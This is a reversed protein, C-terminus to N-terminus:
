EFYELQNWKEVITKFLENEVILKAAIMRGEETKLDYIPDLWESIDLEDFMTPDNNYYVCFQYIAQITDIDRAIDSNVSRNCYWDEWSDAISGMEQSEPYTGSLLLSQMVANENRDYYEQRRAKEPRAVDGTRVEGLDHILLMNLIKNKDYEKSETKEPLYMTGILWCNYMHEAISEPDAIGRNVWGTRKVVNTRFCDNFVKTPSYLEEEICYKEIEGQMWEFYSKIKEFESLKRQRLIWRLFKQTKAAYKKIDITEKGLAAAEVRAQIMSCLTFCELVLKNSFDHTEIKEKISACLVDLTNTGRKCDDEFDLMSKNPIYQKDGYYTLHFARNVENTYKDFLLLEFYDDAAKREGLVILSVSITRLLFANKKTNLGTAKAEIYQKKQQERYKRLLSISEEISVKNKLRGMWFILQNKELVSMKDYHNNAISLVKSEYADIQNIMPSVFVTVAKPLIMSFFHLQERIHEEDDVDLEELRIFYYRAILYDLVSRHKCIIQWRKDAYLEEKKADISGYEFEYALEAASDIESTNLTKRCIALYLDAITLQDNLINGLMERLLTVLWYVDLKAVNLKALRDYITNEDVNEYPIHIGFAHLCNRIFETSREKDYLSMSEIRLYYEFDTGAIPHVSFKHRNNITFDSDLSVVVKCDIARINKRIINYLTENGTSFDHVGDLIIVPTKNQESDILDVIAKFHNSVSREYSYTDDASINKKLKEFFTVDLYFPLISKEEREILLYLYQLLKNKYSGLPGKIKLLQSSISTECGEVIVQYITKAIDQSDTAADLHKFSHIHNYLQSLTQVANRIEETSAEALALTGDHFFMSSFEKATKINGNWVSKGTDDPNNGFSVDEAAEHIANEVFSVVTDLSDKNCDFSQVGRLARPLTHPNIGDVYTFVKANRGNLIDLYFGDWEYKVWRSNMNEVSTGIVILVVCNDLEEDIREKYKDVGLEMLSQSAYFTEIGAADLADYLKNAMESDKTPIGNKTNKYSLFVKNSM